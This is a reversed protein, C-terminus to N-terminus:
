PYSKDTLAAGPFGDDSAAVAGGDPDADADSGPNCARTSSWIPVAIQLPSIAGPTRSYMSSRASVYATERETTRSASRTSEDM